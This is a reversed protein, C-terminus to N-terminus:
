PCIPVASAKRTIRIRLCTGGAACEVTEGSAVSDLKVAGGTADVIDAECEAFMADVKQLASAIYPDTKDTRTWFFVGDTGNYWQWDEFLDPASPLFKGSTGTFMPAHDPDDGPNGPCRINRVKRDGARGPTAGTFHTSDPNIPYNKMAGPDSGGGTADITDDGGPYSLFCEQVTSVILDAQSKLDTASKFTNQSQTQQSSSDMFAVTLAGLLAIAILIYILASGTQAGHKGQRGNGDGAGTWFRAGRASQRGSAM